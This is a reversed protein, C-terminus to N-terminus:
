TAEFFIYWNGEIHRFVIGLRRHADTDDVLEDPRETSYLYGKTSGSVSLGSFSVPMWLPEQGTYAWELGLLDFLRVYEQCRDHESALILKQGETQCRGEGDPFIVLLYTENQLMQALLNFQERHQYYNDILEQDSPHRCFLSGPSVSLLGCGIKGMALLGCVVLIAALILSLLYSVWVPFRRNRQKAM